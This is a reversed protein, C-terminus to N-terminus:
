VTANTTNQNVQLLCRTFLRELGERQLGKGIFVVVSQRKEGMAWSQHPQIDIRKGVSQVVYKQEEGAFWFLGKMRYLGKSQFMLYAFLQQYLIDSRFPRDFFLTLTGVGETHKHPHPNAPRAVPFATSADKITEMPESRFLEEFRKAHAELDIEPFANQQG